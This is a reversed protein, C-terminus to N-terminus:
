KAPTCGRNSRSPPLKRAFVCRAGGCPGFTSPMTAVANESDPWQRSNQAPRAVTTRSDRGALSRIPAHEEIALAMTHRKRYLIGPLRRSTWVLLKEDIGMGPSICEGGAKVNRVEPRGITDECSAKRRGPRIAICRRSTTSAALGEDAAARRCRLSCADRM